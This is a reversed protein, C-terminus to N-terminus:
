PWDPGRQDDRFLVAELLGKEPHVRANPRDHAQFGLLLWDFRYADLNERSAVPWRELQLIVGDRGTTSGAVGRM